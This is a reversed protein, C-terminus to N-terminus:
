EKRVGYARHDGRSNGRGYEDWWLPRGELIDDLVRRVQEFDHTLPQLVQAGEGFTVVGIRTTESNLQLLLGAPPRSKPLWFPTVCIGSHRSALEM